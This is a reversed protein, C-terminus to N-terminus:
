VPTFQEDDIEQVRVQFGYDANNEEEDLIDLEVMSNKNMLRMPSNGPSNPEEVKNKEPSYSKYMLPNEEKELQPRLLLPAASKFLEDQSQSTTLGYPQDYDDKIRLSDSREIHDLVHNISESVKRVKRNKSPVSVSQFAHQFTKSSKLMKPSTRRMDDEGGASSLYLALNKGEREMIIKRERNADFHRDGRKKHKVEVKKRNEDEELDEYNDDSDNFPYESVELDRISAESSLLAEVRKKKKSTEDAKPEKFSNIKNNFTEISKHIKGAFSASDYLREEIEIPMEDHALENGRFQSTVVEVPMLSNASELVIMFVRRGFYLVNPGHFIDEKFVYSLFSRLLRINTNGQNIALYKALAYPNHLLM